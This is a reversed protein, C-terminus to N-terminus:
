RVFFVLKCGTPAGGSSRVHVSSRLLPLPTTPPTILGGAYDRLAGPESLVYSRANAFDDPYIDYAYAGPPAAVIAHAPDGEYGRWTSPATLMLPTCDIASGDAIEAACEMRAGNPDVDAGPTYRAVDVKIYECAPIVYEGGALDTYLERQMQQSGFSFRLVGCQGTQLSGVWNHSEDIGYDIGEPAPASWWVGAPLRASYLEDGTAERTVRVRVVRPRPSKRDLDSCVPLWHRPTLQGAAGVPLSVTGALSM